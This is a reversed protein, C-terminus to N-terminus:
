PSAVRGGEAPAQPDDVGVGDSRQAAPARCLLVLAALLLAGAAIMVVPRTSDLVFVWILPYRRVAREVLQSVEDLRSSVVATHGLDGSPAASEAPGGPAALSSADGPLPEAALEGTQIALAEPAPAATGFERRYVRELYAVDRQLHEIQRGVRETRNLLEAQRELAAAYEQRAVQYEFWPPLLLCAALALGGTLTMAWFLLTAAPDRRSM